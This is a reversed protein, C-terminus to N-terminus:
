FLMRTKKQVENGLAIYTPLIYAVMFVAGIQGRGAFERSNGASITHECDKFPMLMEIAAKTVAGVEKSSVKKALYFWSRRELITM